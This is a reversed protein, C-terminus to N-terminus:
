TRRGLVTVLTLEAHFVGRRARAALDRLDRLHARAPEPLPAAAAIDALPLGPPGAAQAPDDPDWRDLVVVDRREVTDIGLAALHTAVSAAFTAHPVWELAAATWAARVGPDPHDIRFTGWDTDTIAIAGGRRTLAAVSRLGAVPDSTWQLIREAHVLDARASVPLRLVDAQVAASRPARRRGEVLMAASRDVDVTWAGRSRASAGFTGPGAGIDIVRHGPRVGTEALIWARAAQVAPWGDTADMMAILRATESGNTADVDDFGTRRETM